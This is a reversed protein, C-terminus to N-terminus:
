SGPQIRGQRGLKTVVTEAGVRLAEKLGADIDANTVIEGVGKPRTAKGAWRMECDTLGVPLM